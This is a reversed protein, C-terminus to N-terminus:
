VVVLQLRRALMRVAVRGEGRSGREVEELRVDAQVAAHPAGSVFLLELREAHGADNEVPAEVALRLPAPGRKCFGGEPVSTPMRRSAGARDREPSRSYASM